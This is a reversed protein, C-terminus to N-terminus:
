HSTKLELFTNIWERWPVLDDYLFVPMAGVPSLQSFDGSFVINYSGFPKNKNTQGALICLKHHLNEIIARSAFSVEDVFVLHCNAWEKKRDRTTADNANLCAAKHTTEGAIAVAAAGTLATVTVTRRNFPIELNICFARAYECVANIVRSKGSGGAGTMFCVLQNKSPINVEELEKMNQSITRQGLPQITRDTQNMMAHRYISLVFSAVIIRFAREQDVDGAFVKAAWANISALSGTASAPVPAGATSTAFLRTTGTIILKHLDQVSISEWRRQQEQEAEDDDANNNNAEGDANNHNNHHLAAAEDPGDLISEERFSPAKLSEQQVQHNAIMKSALQNIKLRNMDDRFQLRDQQQQGEMDMMAATYEDMISELGGDPIDHDHNHNGDNSSSTATVTNNGDNDPATTCRELPDKVRGCNLSNRCDQINSLLRQHRATLKGESNMAQLAEIHSRQAIRTNGDAGEKWEDMRRFPCFLTLVQRAYENMSHYAADPTDTRSEELIDRGAFSATNVFDQYSIGVLVNEKRKAIGRVRHSPHPELLPETTKTRPKNYYKEIFDVLCTDELSTPRYLYDNVQSSLFFNRRFDAGLSGLELSNNWFPRTYLPQLKHSYGFRSGHRILYVAMPAAVIHASTALFVAGILRRLGLRQAMVDDMVEEAGANGNM